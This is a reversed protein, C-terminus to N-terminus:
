RENGSKVRVAQQSFFLGFVKGFIWEEVLIAVALSFAMGATVTVFTMLTQM